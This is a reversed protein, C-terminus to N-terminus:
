IPQAVAWISGYAEVKLKATDGDVRIISAPSRTAFANTSQTLVWVQTGDVIILRDHLVGPATLRAELPRTAGYQARWKPIALALSPKYGKQDSLLRVAVGEPALVAYELLAKDDMYPDILLFEGKASALVKSFAGHADFANGAPIFAGQAAVPAALEAVALARHLSSIITRHANGRLFSQHLETTARRIAVADDKLKLEAVLAYAMGLWRYAEADPEDNSLDPPVSAILHGLRVYLAQADM